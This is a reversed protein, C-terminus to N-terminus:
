RGGKTRMAIARTELQKARARQAAARSPDKEFRTASIGLWYMRGELVRVESANLKEAETLLADAEDFLRRAMSESLVNSERIAGLLASALDARPVPGPKLSRRAARLAADADATKGNQLLVSALTVHGVFAEPHQKVMARAVSEQQAPRKLQGPSYVEVLKV